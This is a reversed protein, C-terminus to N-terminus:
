TNPVNAYFEWVISKIAIKPEKIFWRRGLAGIVNTIGEFESNKGMKFNMSQEVVCIKNIETAKYFILKTEVSSFKAKYYEIPTEVVKGKGVKSRKVAM